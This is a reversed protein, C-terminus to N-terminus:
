GLLATLFLIIAEIREEAGVVQRCLVIVVHDPLGLPGFREAVQAASAQAVFDDITLLKAECRAAPRTKKFHRPASLKCGIDEALGSEDRGAPAPLPVVISETM